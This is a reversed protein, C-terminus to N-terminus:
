FVAAYVALHHHHSLKTRMQSPFIGRWHISARVCPVRFYNNAHFERLPIPGPHIPPDRLDNDWCLDDFVRIQIIDPSYDGTRVASPRRRERPSPYFVSVLSCSYVAATPVLVDLKFTLGTLVATSRQGRFM